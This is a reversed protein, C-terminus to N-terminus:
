NNLKEKGEKSTFILMKVTGFGFSYHLIQNRKRSRKLDSTKPCNMGRTPFSQVCDPTAPRKEAILTHEKDPLSM